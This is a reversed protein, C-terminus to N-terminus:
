VSSVACKLFRENLKERDLKRGILVVQTSVPRDRPWAGSFSVEMMDHVGQIVYRVTHGEQEVALVGKYRYLDVSQEDLLKNVFANFKNVCLASGAMELVMTGIDTDHRSATAPTSFGANRIWGPLNEDPCGVSYPDACDARDAVVPRLVEDFDRGDELLKTADFADIALLEEIPVEDPRKAISCKRIPALNNIRRIAAATEEVLSDDVADVKNLLIKDAFAIQQASENVAGPSRERDLQELFHRADVMTLVGDIKCHRQVVPDSGFTKCIPGPDAMGTTEILIGDLMANPVGELIRDEVTNIIERIAVALDDRLTCCLCGNDLVTISEVTEKKGVDQDLLMEDIPVEGFENEIVAYRKGVQNDLIYNLLTTKGAGLFGTLVTVPIKGYANIGQAARICDDEDAPAYITSGNDLKVQYPTVEDEPWGPETYWHRVVVGLLWDGCNCEVRAGVAFRLPPRELAAAQARRLAREARRAHRQAGAGPVTRPPAPGRGRPEAVARHRRGDALAARARAWGGGTSALSRM